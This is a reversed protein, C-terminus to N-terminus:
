WRHYHHHHWYHPHYYPRRYYYYGGESGWRWHSRYRGHYYHYRYYYHHHHYHVNQAAGDRTLTVASAGPSGATAAQSSGSLVIASLAMMLGVLAYLAHRM